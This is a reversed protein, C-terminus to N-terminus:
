FKALTLRVLVQDKGISNTAGVNITAQDFQPIKANKLAVGFALATLNGDYEKQEGVKYGGLIEAYLVRTNPPLEEKAVFKEIENRLVEQDFKNFIMVFAHKFNDGSGVAATPPTTVKSDGLSPVFSITALFIIMLALFSDAFLWGGQTTADETHRVRRTAQHRM